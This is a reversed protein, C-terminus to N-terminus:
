DLGFNRYGCVCDGGVGAMLDVPETEVGNVYRFCEPAENITEQYEIAFPWMQTANTMGVPVGMIGGGAGQEDSYLRVSLLTNNYYCRTAGGDGTIDASPVVQKRYQFDFTFASLRM